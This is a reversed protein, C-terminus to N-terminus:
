EVVPLIALIVNGKISAPLAVAAAIDRIDGKVFFVANERLLSEIDGGLRSPREREPESHSRPKM